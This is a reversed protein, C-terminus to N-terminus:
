WSVLKYDKKVARQVSITHHPDFTFKSHRPIRPSAILVEHKPTYNM